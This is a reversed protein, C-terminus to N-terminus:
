HPEAAKQRNIAKKLFVIACALQTGGTLAWSIPYSIFITELSPSLPFVFSIWVIRFACAGLLPIITSSFTKGLGRLVGCSTDMIGILFYLSMVYVIRKVAADYAVHELTGVAGDRIGYLALLPAKFGHLIGTGVFGVFMAFLGTSLIVRWIRKYKKAGYNQSTFTIAAQYVSNIATYLFGELNAAASNGNVVPEVKSTAGMSSVVTNNVQIISSQIIMNSLSFVASQIGAPLGERIISVLARRDFRAKKLSFRCPSDDKSLLILLRIASVLNAIATAIAVGEVSMGFVLVFLLNLGVNIIGSVSLVTLPTKTDGKARFIASLYNTASLFPVGCFYIKTYTTALDLLNGQAGMMSLVPRSIFLGIVTALAGVALSMVISTHVTRSVADKDKAGLYRAVIVNAGVSFGMFLNVILGVCAGTMGIAGVANAENSLSVIMMDAANYFTQLLNTAMVPLVFMIMKAFIPGETLDVSKKKLKAQSAIM